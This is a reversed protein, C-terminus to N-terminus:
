FAKQPIAIRQSPPTLSLTTPEGPKGLVTQFKTSMSLVSTSPETAVGSNLITAFPPAVDLGVRRNKSTKPRAEGFVYEHDDTEFPGVDEWQADYCMGQRRPPNHDLARQSRNSWQPLLGQQVLPDFYLCFTEHWHPQYRQLPPCLLFSESRSHVSKPHIRRSRRSRSQRVRWLEFDV